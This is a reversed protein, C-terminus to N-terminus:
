ISLPRSLGQSGSIDAPVGINAVDNRSVSPIPRGALFQSSPKHPWDLLWTLPPSGGRSSVTGCLGPCLPYRKAPFIILIRQGNLLQHQSSSSLSDLSILPISCSSCQTLPLVMRSTNTSICFWCHIPLAFACSLIPFWLDSILSWVLLCSLSCIHNNLLTHLSSTRLRRSDHVRSLRFFTILWAGLFFHTAACRSLTNIEPSNDMRQLKDIFERPLFLLLSLCFVSIFYPM